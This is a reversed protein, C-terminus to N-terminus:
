IDILLQIEQLTEMYEWMDNGEFLNNMWAKIADKDWKEIVEQWINPDFKALDLIIGQNIALQLQISM